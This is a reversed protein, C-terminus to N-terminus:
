RRDRLLLRCVRGYLGPCRVTAAAALRISRPLQPNKGLAPDRLGEALEARLSAFVEAYAAANARRLIMSALYTLKEYYFADASSKVADPATNRITQAVRRQQDISDATLPRHSASAAHQRYHYGAFDCYALGPAVSFAQWNALLDENFRFGNDLLSPPMLSRHYLKNWLGYDVRHDHLLADLHAPSQLVTYAQPAGADASPANAFTDYRCAALPLGSDLAAHLLTRILDKHYLDDADAFALYDGKAKAAGAARAASVGCQPQRLVTFRPDRRAFAECLAASDDTSGDEVLICELNRHSQAAISALCVPLFAAANHVPVVVSVLVEQGRPTM